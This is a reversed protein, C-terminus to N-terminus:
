FNSMTICLLGLVKGKRVFLIYNHDNKDTFSHESFVNQRLLLINSLGSTVLGFRYPLEMKLIQSKRSIASM